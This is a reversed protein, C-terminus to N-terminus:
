IFYPNLNTIICLLISVNYFNDCRMGFRCQIGKNLDVERIFFNSEKTSFLTLDRGIFTFTDQKPAGSMFYHHPASAPLKKEDAEKAMARWTRFDMHVIKTPPTFDEVRGKRGGWFMFHNTESREVTAKAINEAIYDDTWKYTVADFEPIDYLKFPVEAELYREAMAREAPDSYNFHQLMETFKQPPDPDDPNWRQIISLLSDYQPYAASPAPQVDPWQVFM